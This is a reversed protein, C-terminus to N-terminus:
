GWGVTDVGSTYGRRDTAADVQLSQVVTAAPIAPLFVSPRWIQNGHNPALEARTVTAAQTAAQLRVRMTRTEERTAEPGERVVWGAGEAMNDEKKSGEVSRKERAATWTRAPSTCQSWDHM